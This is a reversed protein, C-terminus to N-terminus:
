RSISLLEVEFVLTANPPVRGPLGRGGYALRAPIVLQRVGGARMGRLGDEWGRIVQRQGLRFTVSEKAERSSDFEVGDTLWGVYHITLLAGDRATPGRGETLDRWHIAGTRQMASLDIGLSPAFVEEQAVTPTPLMLLLALALWRRKLRM